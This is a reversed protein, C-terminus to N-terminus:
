AAAIPQPEPDLELKRRLAATPVIWRNGIRLAPIEGRRAAAYASSRSIGLLAAAEEITMTPTEVASPIM